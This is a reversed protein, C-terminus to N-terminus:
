SAHKAWSEQTIGLQKCVALESEAAQGGTSPGGQGAAEPGGLPVVVPAKDVFLRFGAPDKLAYDRAWAQNAPTVKGAKLALGVVDDADREDLRRKLAAYEAAPVANSPNRLAIVAARLAVPTREAKLELAEVAGDRFEVLDKVAVTVEDPGAEDKLGLGTLAAGRTLKLREVAKLVQAETADKGLGLMELVQTWDMEGDGAGGRRKNTLARMGHIAPDNTLAVSHLEFARRDSERIWVVPSLYRYEGSAIYEHARDNWRTHGYLGDDRPELKDIWGAAPAEGGYLTQHEYDVVMDRELAAFAAIIMAMAEADCLFDGHASKVEGAPIIQIWEPVQGDAECVLLRPKVHLPIRNKM